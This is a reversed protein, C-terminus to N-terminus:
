VPNTIRTNHYAALESYLARDPRVPTPPVAPAPTVTVTATPTAVVVTAAASVPNVVPAVVPAPVPVPAAVPTPISVNTLTPTTVKAVTKASLNEAAITEIETKVATGATTYVTQLTTLLSKHSIMYYILAALAAVIGLGLLIIAGMVIVEHYLFYSYVFLVAASIGASLYFFIKGKAIYLYICLIISAIILVLLLPFRIWGIIIGLVGGPVQPSFNNTPTTNPPNNFLNKEAAAKQQGLSVATDAMKQLSPNDVIVPGYWEGIVDQFAKLVIDIGDLAAGASIFGTQLYLELGAVDLAMITPPINAGHSKPDAARAALEDVAPVMGALIKKAEADKTRAAQLMQRDLDNKQAALQAYDSKQQTISPGFLSCGIIAIISLLILWFLVRKFM